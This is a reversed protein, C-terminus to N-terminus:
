GEGGKGKSKLRMKVNVKQVRVNYRIKNIIGGMLMERIGWVLEEMRTMSRAKLGFKPAYGLYSLLDKTLAEFVEIERATLAKEWANIREVDPLKGILVHQGSAYEPVIFNDAKVMGDQYDIDLWSCLKKLTIEPNKVLEEYTIRMVRKGGGFSEAALGYAVREIWFYAAKSITNPGWDLPMISAAVARGDRVIHILRAEPFLEFLTAAHRINSPTHDVWMRHHLKGQKEGYKRVIWEILGPYSSGIESLPVSGLDIDFGLKFRWHSKIKNITYMIDNDKNNRYSYHLADIKFQSEPVCLCESHSGLM